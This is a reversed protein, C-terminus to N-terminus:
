HNVDFWTLARPATDTDVGTDTDVATDTHASTDTHISTDVLETDVLGTDVPDPKCGFLACLAWAGFAGVPFVRPKM